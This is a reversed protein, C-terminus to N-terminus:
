SLATLHARKDYIHESHYTPGVQLWNVKDGHLQADSLEEEMDKWMKEVALSGPEM